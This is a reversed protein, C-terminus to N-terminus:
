DCRVIVVAQYTGNPFVGITRTATFNVAINNTGRNLNSVFTGVVNNVVTAGSVTYRAAFRTSASNGITFASLAITRVRFGRSSTNAVLRSARGGTNSSSLTQSTVNPRLVGDSVTTLTCSNSVAAGFRVSRSDAWASSCVSIAVASILGVAIQRNKYARGFIM